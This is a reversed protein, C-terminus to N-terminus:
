CPPPNSEDGAMNTPNQTGIFFAGAKKPKQNKYSGMSLENILKEMLPSANIEDILVVAGEHFAKILLQEKQPQDLGAPMRYFPKPLLCPNKLDYVEVFGNALLIHEVLESKGIGPEGEIIMGGLGGYLQEDNAKNTNQRFERLALLDLLDHYIPMRSSTILFHEHIHINQQLYLSEKPKFRNDFEDKVSAPVLDKALEYAYHQAVLHPNMNPHTNCYSQTLLAMMQLERPSILVDDKTSCAVLFRYVELFILSLELQYKQLSTKEFVPKLSDEYLVATSLPELIETNGHRMFLSALKREGYAIPNGAFIVKHEKSLKYHKGKYLIRPPNKFCDRM